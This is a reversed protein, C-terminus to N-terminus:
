VKAVRDIKKTKPNWIGVVESIDACGDEDVSYVNNDSDRCYTKKQYEFAELEPAEEEQPVPDIKKTTPNWIGVIESIEAAGEEDVAYVNNNQDRAYSKKKYTFVELDLEEEAEEEEEDEEEAVEEEEVEEEEVEEEEEEVSLKEVAKVLSEKAKTETALIDVDANLAAEQAEEIEVQAEVAEVPREDDMRTQLSGITTNVTQLTEVMQKITSELLEVRKELMDHNYALTRVEGMAYEDLSEIRRELDQLRNQLDSSGAGGTPQKTTKLIDQIVTLRDHLTNELNRCLEQIVETSM